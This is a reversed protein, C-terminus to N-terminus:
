LGLEQRAEKLWPHEVLLDNQCLWEIYVRAGEDLSKELAKKLEKEYPPVGVRDWALKDAIFVCKDLDTAAKKLTTHCGIASLVDSSTIAFIEQAILVSQRQHLLMPLRYEADYILPEKSQQQVEIRKEDPIVASSDHLLGAKYAHDANLQFQKALKEAERAVQQSHFFVKEKGFYTLYTALQQELNMSKALSYNYDVLINM